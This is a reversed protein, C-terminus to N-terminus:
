GWVWKPSWSLFIKLKFGAQNVSSSGTMTTTWGGGWFFFFSVLFIKLFFVMYLVVIQKKRNKYAVLFLHRVLELRVCPCCVPHAKCHCQLTPEMQARHRNAFVKKILAIHVIPFFQLQSVDSLEKKLFFFNSSSSASTFLFAVSAAYWPLSLGTGRSARSWLTSCAWSLQSLKFKSAFNIM